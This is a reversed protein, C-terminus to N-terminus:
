QGEKKDRTTRVKRESKKTIKNEKRNELLKRLNQKKM